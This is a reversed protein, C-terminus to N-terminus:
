FVARAEIDGGYRSRGGGVGWWRLGGNYVFGYVM